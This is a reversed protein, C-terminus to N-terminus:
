VVGPAKPSGELGGRFGGMFSTRRFRASDFAFGFAEPIIGPWLPQDQTQRRYKGGSQCPIDSLGVM